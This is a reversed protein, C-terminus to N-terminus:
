AECAAQKKRSSAATEREHALLYRKRWLGGGYGTLQGDAGVIRHCPLVIALRNEGVARAVARVGAPNGVKEALQRYTWTMGSRVTRLAEWVRVQHATGPFRVPTRFTELTGDFYHRLEDRMQEIPGTSGPFFVVGLRKELTSFQTELMRRDWFEVLFVAEDDGAIMLPGLPSPVQAVRLCPRERAASPSRGTRQRLADCFGSVSDFDTALAAELVESGSKIRSFAEGLRRSRLYALFTMDHNAQFWRRVRAPDIGFDAVSQATWRRRPDAEVALMLPQLWEPFAGKPELPRCRRCPRYGAALADGARPFFEVNEPRPKRAPCTPRCFIGTTRVGIVFIGEFSADREVFATYM